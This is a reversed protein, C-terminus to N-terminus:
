IELELSFVTNAKESMVQYKFLCVFENSVDSIRAKHQLLKCVVYM